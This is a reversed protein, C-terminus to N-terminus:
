YEGGLAEEIYKDIREDIETYLDDISKGAAWAGDVVQLLKGNDSTTVHPLMDGTEDDKAKWAGGVVGLVKGNDATTVPPLTANVLEGVGNEDPQIIYIKAVGDEYVTVTQGFYYTTNTSGADEATAAAALAEEFSGFMERADLPFATSPKLAVNFDLVNNVPEYSSM